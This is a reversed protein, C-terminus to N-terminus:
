SFLGASISIDILEVVSKVQMKELIRARHHDVTRPSIDLIRAVQKSSTSSPDTVLIEAIERERETLTDFKVWTSRAKNDNRRNHADMELAKTIRDILAEQRFPKELFDLAGRKMAQVSEPVGGHGTVFIIPISHGQDVLIDQLELGSMKPMGYDLILCGGQTGDYADLFAEASGFTRTNFGRMKLARALSARIMDDDDVIFIVPDDATM